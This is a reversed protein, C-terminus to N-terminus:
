KGLMLAKPFTLSDCSYQWGAWTDQSRLWKPIPKAGRCSGSDLGTKKPVQGGSQSEWGKLSGAKHCWEGVLGVVVQYFRPPAWPTTQLYIQIMAVSWHGTVPSWHGTALIVLSRRVPCMHEKAEAVSIDENRADVTSIQEEERVMDPLSLVKKFTKMPNNNTGLNLLLTLLASLWNPFYSISTQLGLKLKSKSM